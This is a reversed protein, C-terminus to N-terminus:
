GGASCSVWRDEIVCKRVGRAVILNKMRRVSIGDIPDNIKVSSPLYRVLFDIAPIPWMQVARIPRSIQLWQNSPAYNSLICYPCIPLDLQLVWWVVNRDFLPRELIDDHTLTVFLLLAAFSGAIFAVFKAISSLLPSPFQAVYKEAAKHSANLRCLVSM